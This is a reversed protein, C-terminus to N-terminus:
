MLTSLQKNRILNAEMISARRRNTAAATPSRQDAPRQPPERGGSCWERTGSTEDLMANDHPSLVAATKPSVAAMGPASRLRGFTRAERSWSRRKLLADAVEVVAAAPGFGPDGVRTTRSGRVRASASGCGGPSM